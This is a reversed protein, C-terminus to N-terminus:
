QHDTYRTRCPIRTGLPLRIQNPHRQRRPLSTSIHQHGRPRGHTNRRPTQSLQLTPPYYENGLGGFAVDINATNLVTGNIGNIIDGRKIGALEAPSNQEVLLIAIVIDGADNIQITRQTFGFRTSIGQFSNNQAVYDDIFWSYRDIANEAGVKTHHKYCLDYMLNRYDTYGNLFTYYENFDDDKSDALKDSDLQWNYWSNMGKWIFNNIPDDLAVKDTAPLTEVFGDDDTCSLLILFLLAFGWLPM